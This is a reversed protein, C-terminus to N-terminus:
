LTYTKLKEIGDETGEIKSSKVSILKYVPTKLPAADVLRQVLSKMSPRLIPLSATCLVGLKLVKSADERLYEPISSDVMNVLDDGKQLRSWVWHVINKDDGYEPEMPRKGTVLEMLVVGFSYVDSKENVRYTHGYEPAIYGHTGPIVHTSDMGNPPQIIKALGFDAIRPKMFEDLLINSSKVDRHTVPPDCGHHLYELGKAAGVAIEYRSEWDLEIKKCTHLRDWLSGNPMYEYVLLSSDDSTISCFLKVVNVHRISSLTAVEADFESFNGSRKMLLSSSRCHPKRDLNHTTYSSKWIHKVALEKGNDLVVKYVNGSGGKGILNDEKISNMIEEESFSLISFSKVDWSYSKLSRGHDKARKKMFLFCGLSVLLLITGGLFCAIITPIKDPKGSISSCQRFYHIYPSCLGPNGAFSGNYAEISLSQPIKGTLQNSSLDLLSLKLSSLSEPIVGSLKNSSLNLSNLSSLSGLSKPIEGLISNKAMNINNLHACSGISMPISGSFKNEQLYLSNLHELEGISSPIEGSFQNFSLDILSLLSAKSIELPLEGSFKNSELHLQALSRANGIDSTIPGGFQNMALDIFSLEPLGWIGSPVNGSLSNNSVRFRTMSLCNSYNVPIDGTFENQLILLEKMTGKKCMEPPIPGTFYNESVDIFDFEAWSGLKQPLVGTFKNTYLSLNVLYKFDGFEYPVEGSLKNEFLQLSILKTLTKLESLDGELENNSADFFQLNTLNGFGFPFMGTFANDYLELQWLKNLKTIGVPIDGSLNNDSLELNELETLNGIGSPISGQISCNTLYLWYLKNLKLVEVPFQSVEFSNDGVSLFRLDVLKELSRWPFVGSFGSNNLNLFMLGALSSFDPVSGSFINGGLDLYKLKTCNNLHESIVGYMHNLGLDLKELSSLECLADFQLFGTLSQKQLNIQLVSQNSNCLIGTFDCLPANSTWSDFVNTNSKTLSAKFKLLIQLEVDSSSSVSSFFLSLFYIIIIQYPTGRPSINASSSM